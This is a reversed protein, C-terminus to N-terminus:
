KILSTVKELTKEYFTTDYMELCRYMNTIKAEIIMKLSDEKAIWRSRLYFLKEDSIKEMKCSHSAEVDNTQVLLTPIWSIKWSEWLFINDENLTWAVNKLSKGIDLIGDLIIEGNNGAFSIIDIHSQCDNSQISSLIKATLKKEWAYILAKVKLHAWKKASLFSKDYTGEKEFFSFYELTSWKWLSFTKIHQSTDFMAVRLNAWIEICDDSINSESLIYFGNKQIKM